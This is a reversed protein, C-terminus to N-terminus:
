PAEFQILLVADRPIWFEDKRVGSTAETTERRLTRMVIWQDTIGNFEGIVSVQAGNFSDTTCSVPLPCAAGLLDRRLQVRCERGLRAALPDAGPSIGFTAFLSVGAVIALVGASLVRVWM